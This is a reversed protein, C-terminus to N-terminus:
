SIQLYIYTVFVYVKYFTNQRTTKKELIYAIQDLGSDATTSTLSNCEDGGSGVSTFATPTHVACYRSRLLPTNTCGTKVRRPLGEYEAYGAIRAACVDRHNKMNGDLM